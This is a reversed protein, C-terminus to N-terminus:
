ARSLFFSSNAKLEENVASLTAFIIHLSSPVDM